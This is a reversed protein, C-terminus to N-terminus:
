FLESFVKEVLWTEYGVTRIETVIVKLLFNRDHVSLQTYCKYTVGVCSVQSIDAFLAAEPLSFMDLLQTLSWRSTTSHRDLDRMPVHFGGYLEDLEEVSM